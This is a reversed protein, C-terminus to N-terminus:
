IKLWRVCKIAVKKQLDLVLEPRWDPNLEALRFFNQNAILMYWFDDFAQYAGPMNQLESM